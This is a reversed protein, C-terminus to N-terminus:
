GNYIKGAKTQVIYAVYNNDIAANPDLIDTLFAAPTKTRESDSIDPGVDVGVGAVRHCTACNKEFVVKGKAADGKLKLAAQYDALVKQREAPLAHQLLKKAKASIEPQKANVLRKTSAPDIENAKIRGAEVEALLANIWEPHRLLADTAAVRLAPAYSKWS